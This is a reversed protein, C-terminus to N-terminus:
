DHGWIDYFNPFDLALYGLSTYSSEYNQLREIGSKRKEERQQVEELSVQRAIM